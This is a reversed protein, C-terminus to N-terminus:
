SKIIKKLKFRKSKLLGARAITVRRTMSKAAALCTAHARAAVVVGGRWRCVCVRAVTFIVRGHARGLLTLLCDCRSRTWTSSAAACM